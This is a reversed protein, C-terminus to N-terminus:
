AGEEKQVSGLNLSTFITRLPGGVGAGGVLGGVFGRGVFGGGGGM